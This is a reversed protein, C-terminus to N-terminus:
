LHHHRLSMRNGGQVIFMKGEVTAPYNIEKSSVLEEGTFPLTFNDRNCAM